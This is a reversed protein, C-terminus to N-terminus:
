TGNIIRTYLSCGASHAVSRRREQLSTLVTVRDSLFIARDSLVLSHPLLNTLTLSWFCPECRIFLTIFIFAFFVALEVVIERWERRRVPPSVLLGGQGPLHLVVRGVVVIQACDTTHVHAHCLFFVSFKGVCARSHPSYLLLLVATPSPPPLSFLTPTVMGNRLSGIVQSGYQWTIQNAGIWYVWKNSWVM